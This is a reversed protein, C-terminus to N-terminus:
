GVGVGILFPNLTLTGVYGGGSSAIKTSVYVKKVDVLNHRACAACRVGGAPSGGSQRPIREIRRRAPLQLLRYPQRWGRCPSSLLPQGAYLPQPILASPLAKLSGIEPDVYITQPYTLVLETAINRTLFSNGDVEPIIGNDTSVGVTAATNTHNPFRIQVALARIIIDAAKYGVMAVHAAMTSALPTAADTGVRAIKRM